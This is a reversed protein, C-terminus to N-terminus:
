SGSQRCCGGRHPNKPAHVKWRASRMEIHLHAADAMECVLWEAFLQETEGEAFIALRDM